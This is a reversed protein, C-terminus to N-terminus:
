QTIPRFFHIKESIFCGMRHFDDLRIIKALKKGRIKHFIAIIRTSLHLRIQNLKRSYVVIFWMDCEERDLVNGFQAM